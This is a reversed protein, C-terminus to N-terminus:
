GNMKIDLDLDASFIARSVMFLGQRFEGLAADYIIVKLGNEDTTIFPILQQYIDNWKQMGFVSITCSHRIKELKNIQNAFFSIETHGENDSKESYHGSVALVANEHIFSKNLQSYEEASCICHISGTKDALNFSAYQKNDKKRNRIALNEVCGCILPSKANVKAIQTSKSPIEYEDLPHGTIYIGLLEKEKALKEANDEPMDTPIIIERYEDALEAYKKLASELTKQKSERTKKNKITELVAKKEDIDKKKEEIKKILNIIEPYILKLATRNPCWCDLAGSDILSYAASKNIRTKQLFDKYSTFSGNEMRIKCIEAGTSGCNKIGSFGFLISKGNTYFENQSTNIHPAQIEIGLNICEQMLLPLKEIKTYNICATMYEAPYHYKLWATYYSVAAYVASHSKNFAYNAFAMLEEWFAEAKEKAIGRILLGEIFKPKYTALADGKKKSMYRRVIDAEGLSFGAIKNCIQMIQEQYVPCGYTEKLVEEAEKCIYSAKKKGAKIECIGDAYQLPGPRFLAVLLILHEMCTPKFKKLLTKMGASEFQFVFNTNGKCYINQYVEIEQPVKEIDISKGSLRKIIRLTQSIIDLNRLGLFDFKLLGAQEEAEEKDCQTCWRGTKQYYMLPVYKSVDGNDSIIVGAAHQSNNVGAGEILKADAIIQLADPNKNFAKQLNSDCDKLKINPQEPIADSVHRGLELYYSANDYESGLIRAAAQIAAKAALTDKAYIGCVANEGYKQRVYEWVKERVEKSFDVDIDPSTVRAPNLFREFLLNYKMPDINTIGILYCVISGAASGRGPGISYGVKEPCDLGQQRGYQVYDQVICLYDTYKMENIVRLEYEVRERYQFETGPYRKKIGEEVMRRLRMESTEGPENGVFKPYHKEEPWIVNCANAIHNINMFAEQIDNMDLILSLTDILEKDSKIYYEPEDPSDPIYKNFRLSTILKRGRVSEKSGDLMHADNACVLPADTEHAIRCLLPMVKKEKELGHYQVEVFFDNIGFIEQYKKTQMYALHYLEEDSVKKAEENKVNLEIEQLQALRTEEEKIKKECLTKQRRITAIQVQLVSLAEAAAKSEAQDAALKKEAEEREEGTKKQVMRIRMEYKRNALSQLQKRKETAEELEKEMKEKEKRFVDPNGLSKPLKGIQKALKKINKDYVDNHLLISALCGGVCASTAIVQGHGKTGPGFHKRLIDENACPFDMSLRSNSETVAQSIAQYGEYTKAMLIMHKRPENKDSLDEKLYLEVGPIANIKEEHGKNWAEAAKKFAFIGTLTGHDTLAVAPAGMEGARQILQAPTVVSDKTSNETHNHLLGYRIRHEVM